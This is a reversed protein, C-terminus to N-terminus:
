AHAEQRATILRGIWELATLVNIWLLVMLFNHYFFAGACLLLNKYALPLITLYRILGLRRVTLEHSSRGTLKQTAYAPLYSLNFLLVFVLYEYISLTTLSAHCVVLFVLGKSIYLSFFTPIRLMSATRNHIAFICAVALLLGALSMCATPGSLAYMAALLIATFLAKTVAFGAMGQRGPWTRATPHAELKAAFTDNERAFIDYINMFALWAVICPVSQHLMDDRSILYLLVAYTMWYKLIHAAREFARRYRTAYYYVGPLCRLVGKLMSERGNATADAIISPHKVFGVLDSDAVADDTMYFSNRLEEKDYFALLHHLKGENHPMVGYRGTCAGSSDFELEAALIHELKLNGVCAWVIIDLSYSAIVVRSGDAIKGQLLSWEAEKRISPLYEEAFAAAQQQLWERSFGRLCAIRIKMYDNAPILRLRRLFSAAIWRAYFGAAYPLPAKTRLFSLFATTTNGDFLTGCFDFIHLVPKNMMSQEDTM